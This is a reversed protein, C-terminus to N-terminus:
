SSDLEIPKESAILRATMSRSPTVSTNATSWDIKFAMGYRAGCHHTMNVYVRPSRTRIGATARVVDISAPRVGEIRLRCRDRWVSGRGQERLSRELSTVVHLVIVVQHRIGM